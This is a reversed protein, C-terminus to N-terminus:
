FQFYLFNAVSSMQFFSIILLMGAAVAYKYRPSFNDTIEETNKGLFAICMGLALVSLTYSNFVIFKRSALFIETLGMGSFESFNFMSRYVYLADRISHAVFIIRAAVVGAFTLLWALPFPLGWKRRAMFHAACVFIGNVIGWLVFRWGAGHWFGSVFFTIMVALYFRISSDGKKYVSRFVYASLFKSLSMHWRRWYDRFNRAKYPSNFNQPLKINFFLALGIAMDAYGSLDFYYSITYALVSTWRRFIGGAYVNKFFEQAYNTLPDALLLKKSCGISFILIGLMINRENLRFQKGSEFQPVIDKHHVIPGVILQPFFTIFLLYNIVTYEKTEGRYCDVLYAILQFTFFSIGIPLIINRLPVAQKTILNYNSIFFDTYKFYGLLLINEALGIALLVKRNRIAYEGDQQIIMSGVIYNFFVTFIFFPLFSMSGQAYFYFSSLVLWLESVLYLKFKNLAVFGTIVILFFVIFKYSAFIM